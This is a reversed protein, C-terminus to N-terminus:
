HVRPDCVLCEFANWLKVGSKESCNGLMLRLFRMVIFHTNMWGVQFFDTSYLLICKYLFEEKKGTEERLPLLGRLRTREANLVCSMRSSVVCVTVRELTKQAVRERQKDPSYTKFSFFPAKKYHPLTAREVKRPYRAHTHVTRAFYICAYAHRCRGRVEEAQHIQRIIIKIVEKSKIILVPMFYNRLLVSNHIIDVIFFYFVRPKWECKGDIIFVYINLPNM